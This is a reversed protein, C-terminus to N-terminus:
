LPEPNAESTEPIAPLVAGLEADAYLDRRSVASLTGGLVSICKRKALAAVRRHHRHVVEPVPIRGPEESV